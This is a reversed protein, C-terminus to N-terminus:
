PLFIVSPRGRVVSKCLLALENALDMIHFKFAKLKLPRNEAGFKLLKRYNVYVHTKMLERLLM